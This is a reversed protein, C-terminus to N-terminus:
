RGLVASPPVDEPLAATGFVARLAENAEALYTDLLAGARIINADEGKFTGGAFAFLTQGMRITTAPGGKADLGDRYAALRANFQRQATELMDAAVGPDNELAATLEYAVISATRDNLADREATILGLARRAYRLEWQAHDTDGRTAAAALWSVDDPAPEAFLRRVYEAAKRQM